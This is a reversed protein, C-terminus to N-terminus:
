FQASAELVNVEAVKQIDEAVQEGSFEEVKKEAEELKVDVDPLDLKEEVAEAGM